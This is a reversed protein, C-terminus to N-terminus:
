RSDLGGRPCATVLSVFLEQLLCDLCVTWLLYDFRVVCLTLLCLYNVRKRKKMITENRGKQEYNNGENM